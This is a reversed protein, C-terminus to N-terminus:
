PDRQMSHMHLFCPTMPLTHALHPSIVLPAADRLDGAQRCPSRCSCVAGRTHLWVMGMAVIRASPVHEQCGSMCCGFAPMCLMSDAGHTSGCSWGICDREGSSAPSSPEAVAGEAAELAEGEAATVDLQVGVYYEVAGDADRVAAVHLCNWFPRGSKTYNLLTVTVPQPPTAHIAASLKAVEAPDTGPGQLIRCNRGM